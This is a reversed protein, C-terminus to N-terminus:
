SIRLSILQRVVEPLAQGSPSRLIIDAIPTIASPEPNVEIITAGHQLAEVPLSAAPQVLGSTGVVLMVDCSSAAEFARRLAAEPLLEGFWVIDPRILDGCHPCRPAHEDDYPITDLDILTPEGRCAAFCKFRSLSGHLEIVDRSGARRHLGDVNQTLIVLRPVMQELEVLAVHGPNPEVQAAQGFRRRYWQWVKDPDRQFAQATALEEPNYRAWLGTQAERFTAIGSEKSIGAGSSVAVLQATDLAAAAQRIANELTM